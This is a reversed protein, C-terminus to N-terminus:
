ISVGRIGVYDVCDGLIAAYESLEDVTPATFGTGVYPQLYIREAGYILMGIDEIDEPTHFEKVVTTRFEYDVKGETLIDISEAIRYKNFSELGITDPYKDISNKIDMAIYDVLGDSIVTEIVDPLYGNTDLKVKLGLDKARSIFSLLKDGQLTPEGGSICVGELTSRRKKLFSLVHSDDYLPEVTRRAIEHNHCYPCNFNCGGLFVTCALKGPYDLLTTKQLGYIRM